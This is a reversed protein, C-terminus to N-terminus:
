AGMVGTLMRRTMRRAGAAPVVLMKQQRTAGDPPRSSSSGNQQLLEEIDPAPAPVYEIVIDHEEQLVRWNLMAYMSTTVVTYLLTVTLPTSVTPVATAQGNAHQQQQQRCGDSVELPYSVAGKCSTM